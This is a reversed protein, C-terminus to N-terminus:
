LIKTLDCQVVRETYMGAFFLWGQRVTEALEEQLQDLEPVIDELSVEPSVVEADAAPSM